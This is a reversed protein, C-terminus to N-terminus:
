LEELAMSFSESGLPIGGADPTASACVILCALRIPIVDKQKSQSIGFPTSQRLFQAVESAASTLSAAAEATCNSPSAPQSLRSALFASTSTSKQLHVRQRWGELGGGKGSGREM